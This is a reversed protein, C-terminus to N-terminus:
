RALSARSEVNRNRLPNIPDCAKDADYAVRAGNPITDGDVVLVNGYGEPNGYWADSWDLDGGLSLTYHSNHLYPFDTLGLVTTHRSFAVLLDHQCSKSITNGGLTLDIDGRLLTGQAPFAAEVLVGFTNNDFLNDHAVVTASGAVASSGVGIAGVRLGAGVPQALHNRVENNTVTATVTAADPLEYQEILTDVPILTTAVILIGPIGGATLRNNTAEYTGPGALCIDCSGGVGSLFNRDVLGTSARLDISETFPGQMLNGAVTIDSVRLAFVGQGGPDDAEHGSVLVLGEITAGNGASGSPHGDVIIVPQSFEDADLPAAPSLVTSKSGDNVGLARGKDDLQMKFSGILSIQPVDIILPWKDLGAVSTGGFTGQYVGSDVAITIRCAATQTEMRTLRGSRAASLADGIRSYHIGDDGSASQKSVVLNVVYDGQSLHRSLESTHIEIIRGASGAGHCVSVLDGIPETTSDCAAVFLAAGLSYIITRARVPM